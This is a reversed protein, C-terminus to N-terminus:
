KKSKIKKLAWKAYDRPPGNHYGRAITELAEKYERQERIANAIKQLLQNDTKIQM